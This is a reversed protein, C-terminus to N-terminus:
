KKREYRMSFGWNPFIFPFLLFCISAIKSGKVKKQKRSTRANTTNGRALRGSAAFGAGGDEERARAKCEAPRATMRDM